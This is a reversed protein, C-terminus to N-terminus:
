QVYIFYWPVNCTMCVTSFNMWQPTHSNMDEYRVSMVTIDYHAHHGRLDGAEHNNVWGNIWTYMLSFMLAGRWQGKHPSNVPSQHIGRVFPWHHPFHKWKIVDDHDIYVTTMATRCAFKMRYLVLSHSLQFQPLVWPDFSFFIKSFHVHGVTIYHSATCKHNGLFNKDHFRYYKSM